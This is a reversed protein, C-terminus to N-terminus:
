NLCTSFSQFKNPSSIVLCLSSFTNLLKAMFCKCRALVLIKQPNFWYFPLAESPVQFILKMQWGLTGYVCTLESTHWRELPMKLAVTLFLFM